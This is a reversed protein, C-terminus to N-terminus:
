QTAIMIASMQCGYRSQKQHTTRRFSFYKEPQSYTDEDTDHVNQIGTAKLKRLCYEPLNFMYHNERVSNIFLSDNSPSQDLFQERFKADVEYSKQRITPGITAQINKADAGLKTMSSITNDIIGKYAGKWGAHCAGIVKANNDEFLIPCCDATIIGLIVNPTKTVLGDAEIGDTEGDKSSITIVHDTHTQNPHKVPLNVDGFHAAVVKLNQTYDAFDDENPKGLNFALSAYEGKSVGGNRTFFNKKILTNAM